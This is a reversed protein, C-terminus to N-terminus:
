AGHPQLCDHTQASRDQAGHRGKFRRHPYQGKAAFGWGPPRRARRAAIRFQHQAVSQLRYGAIDGARRPSLTCARGAFDYAGNGGTEFVYVGVIQDRTLGAALAAKAYARKFDLDSAPREPVFGFQERANQLFDAVVPIDPREPPPETPARPDVPRPPGSYVPPQTLVYDDASIPLHDRRKANRTRRKEAVANWYETAELEYPGRATQYQALRAQYDAIGAPSPSQAYVHPAAALLEGGLLCALFLLACPSHRRM